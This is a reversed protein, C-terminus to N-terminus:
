MIVYCNCTSIVNITMVFACVIIVNVVETTNRINLYSENCDNCCDIKLWPAGFLGQSTGWKM